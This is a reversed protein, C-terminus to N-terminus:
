SCTIVPKGHFTITTDMHPFAVFTLRECVIDISWRMRQIDHGGRPREGHPSYIDDPGNLGLGRITMAEDEYRYIIEGLPDLRSGVGIDRPTYHDPDNLFLDDASITQWPLNDRVVAGVQIVLHHPFHALLKFDLM